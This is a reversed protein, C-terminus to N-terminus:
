WNREEEARQFAQRVADASGSRNPLLPLKRKVFLRPVKGMDAFLAGSRLSLKRAKRLVALTAPDAAVTEGAALRRNIDSLTSPQWAHWTQYVQNLEDEVARVAHAAQEEDVGSISVNVLTGLALLQAQYPTPPPKGCAALGLALLLPLLLRPLAPSM